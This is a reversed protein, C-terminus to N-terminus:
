NMYHALPSHANEKEVGVAKSLGSYKRDHQRNQILYNRAASVM